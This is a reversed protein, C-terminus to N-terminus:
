KEFDTRFYYRSLKHMLLWVIYHSELRRVCGLKWRHRRYAFLSSDSLLETVLGMTAMMVSVKMRMM